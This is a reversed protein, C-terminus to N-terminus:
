DPCRLLRRRGAAVLDCCKVEAEMPRRLPAHRAGVLDTVVVLVRAAVGEPREAKFGQQAEATAQLGLQLLQLGATSRKDHTCGFAVFLVTCIGGHEQSGIEDQPVTPGRSSNSATETLLLRARCERARPLASLTRSFVWDHLDPITPRADLQRLLMTPDVGAEDLVVEFCVRGARLVVLLEVCIVGCPDDRAHEHNASVRRCHDKVGVWCGALM